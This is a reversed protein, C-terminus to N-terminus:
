YVSWVLPDSIENMLEEKLQMKEAVARELMEEGNLKTGGSPGPLLAYKSRVEGLMEKCTSLAYRQIWNKYKPQITRADVTRYEVIVDETALIPQPYIMLYQNNLIQWTGDQGLTRRVQKLYMQLITFDAMRLNSGGVWNDSFYKMFFDFELSGQPYNVTMLSKRYFVHELNDLIYKPIEYTNCGASAEFVAFQRTMLPAWYQMETIAEDVATKIQHTTLEVRVTPYGLRALCFDKIQEEFETFEVDEALKTVNLKDRDIETAKYNSLLPGDKEGFSSGYPKVIPKPVSSM